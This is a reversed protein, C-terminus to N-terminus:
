EGARLVSITRQLSWVYIVQYVGRLVPNLLLFLAIIVIFERASRDANVPYVFLSVAVLYLLGFSIGFLLVRWGLLSLGGVLLATSTDRVRTGLMLSFATVSRARWVPERLYSLTFTVVAVGFTVVTLMGLWNAENLTSYTAIIAMVGLTCSLFGVLVTMFMPIVARLATEVRLWRWIRVHTLSLYTNALIGEDLSTLRVLDIHQPKGRGHWISVTLYLNYLDVAVSYVMQSVFFALPALLLLGNVILEFLPTARLIVLAFLGVGLLTVLTVALESHLPSVDAPVHRVGQSRLERRLVPNTHSVGTLPSYREVLRDFLM